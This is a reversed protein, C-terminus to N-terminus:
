GRRLLHRVTLRQGYRLLNLRFARSALWIAGVACITQVSVSVVVQWTPVITFLNRLGVAMMSTFPSLSLGITLSSNPNKLILVSAIFPLIHLIIFITSVSQGEQATPFMAGIAVMVATTLIYAPIAIAVTAVVSRWDMSLDSLWRVGAQNGVFIVLLVMGTWILLLTLSIAVIGIIKGAIFQLPSISTVLVEFTRNEKEDTVANLIYGSSILLLMLFVITIFLPMLLGFTPGSSVPTERQGDISRVIFDTGFAARRVIEPPYRSLLNIRLLDYFQQWANEGPEQLYVIELQRTSEYHEPLIFYAQIKNAELAARAAQATQFAMFDVPQYEAQRLSKLEPSFLSINLIAAQDVIGVPLSREGRRAEMLIGIGIIVILYAPVSFLTLLFRGKFVNRGYEYAAVLWFSRM